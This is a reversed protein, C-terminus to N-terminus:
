EDEEQEIEQEEKTEEVEKVGVEAMKTGKKKRRTEM